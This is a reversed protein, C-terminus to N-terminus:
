SEPNKKYVEPAPIRLMDHTDLTARLALGDRALGALCASIFQWTRPNRLPRLSPRTPCWGLCGAV